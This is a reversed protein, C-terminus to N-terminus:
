SSVVRKGALYISIVSILTMVAVYLSIPWSANDALSLLSTGIVPALGGAVIGAIQYGLSAGSYRVHAGFLETFFAAIPGYAVGLCTMGLCLALIILGEHRSDIMWFLPFVLLGLAATGILCVRWRGIQDSLIGALPVALLKCCAGVLIANLLFGETVKLVETGYYMVFTVFIYFAVSTSLLIGSTLMVNKLDRRMVEFLPVKVIAQQEKVKEFEPSETIQLRIFAGVALLLASLLFPIRWGITLFQEAPFIYSMWSFALSSLLLGMPAGMQPWSGYFGRRHRPAHETAMLVAGGWEGGVAIGQIFRLSVLAVTAWVGITEYTPLCGILFTAGGMLVLTLVLIEKRGIRDGFHGFIIGGIPRAVFGVWFTAFAALQGMLPSFTPFFLTNFVLAAATGYLFFDYWEISTGILSAIAVRTIATRSRTAVVKSM